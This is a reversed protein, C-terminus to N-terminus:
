RLNTETSEKGVEQFITPIRVQAAQPVVGLCLKDKQLLIYSLFFESDEVIFTKM